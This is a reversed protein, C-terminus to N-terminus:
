AHSEIGSLFREFEGLLQETTKPLAPHDGRAQRQLRIWVCVRNIIAEDHHRVVKYADAILGQTFESNLRARRGLYGDLLKVLMIASNVEGASMPEGDHPRRFLSADLLLSQQQVAKELQRRQLNVGKTVGGLKQIPVHSSGLHQNEAAFMPCFYGDGESRLMPELRNLWREPPISPLAGAGTAAAPAGGAAEEVQSKPCPVQSEIGIRELDEELLVAQDRNLFGPRHSEAAYGLARWLTLFAALATHFGVKRELMRFEHRGAFDLPLHLCKDM